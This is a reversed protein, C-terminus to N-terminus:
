ITQYYRKMLVYGITSLVFPLLIIVVVLSLDNVPNKVFPSALVGERQGVVEQSVADVFVTGVNGGAVNIAWVLKYDDGEVWLSDFYRMSSMVRYASSGETRALYNLAAEEAQSSTISNQVPISPVHTWQYTFAVPEGTVLDLHLSVVNGLVLTENIVNIFRLSYVYEVDIIALNHEIKPGVYRTLPNLSYNYKQFFEVGKGEIMSNSLPSTGNYERDYPSPYDWHINFSRVKGSFANVSMYVYMSNREYKLVWMTPDLRTWVEDMSLDVDALLPHQSMFQRASENATQLDVTSYHSYDIPMQVGNSTNLIPGGPNVVPDPTESILEAFATDEIPVGIIEGENDSLGAINVVFLPIVLGTLFLLGAVFVVMRNSSIMKM